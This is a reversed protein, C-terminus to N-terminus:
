FEDTDLRSPISNLKKGLRDTWTPDLRYYKGERPAPGHQAELEVLAKRTTPEPRAFKRAAQAITLGKVSHHARSDSKEKFVAGLNENSCDAGGQKWRRISRKSIEARPHIQGASQISIHKVEVTGLDDVKRVFATRVYGIVSDAGNPARIRTFCSPRSALWAHLQAIIERREDDMKGRLRKMVLLEVVRRGILNPAQFAFIAARGDASQPQEQEFDNKVCLLAPWIAEVIPAEEGFASKLMDDEPVGGSIGANTSMWSACHRLFEDVSLAESYTFPDDAIEQLRNLALWSAFHFAGEGRAEELEELLERRLSEPLLQRM